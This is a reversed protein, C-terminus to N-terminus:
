KGLYDKLSQRLLKLARQIESTVKRCSIKYKDAIQRYTMDDERSSLFINKTLDPMNVLEKRFIDLIESHYVRHSLEGDSLASIGTEIRWKVTDSMENKAKTITQQKRLWSICRARVSMYLYGKINDEGELTDRHEWLYMFSDTVIDKAADSDNVYSFAISEFSSRCELFLRGFAEATLQMIGSTKDADESITKARRAIEQKGLRM